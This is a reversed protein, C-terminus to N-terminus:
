PQCIPTRAMEDLLSRVHFVVEAPKGAPAGSYGIRLAPLSSLYVLFSRPTDLNPSHLGPNRYRLEGSSEAFWIRTMPKWKTYGEFDMTLKESPPPNPHQPTAHFPLAFSSMEVGGFAVFWTLDRKGGLETCEMTFHPPASAGQGDNGELVTLRVYRTGSQTDMGELRLVKPAGTAPEVAHAPARLSIAIAAFSCLFVLRSIPNM